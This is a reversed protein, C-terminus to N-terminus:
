SDVYLLRVVELEEISDFFIVNNKNRNYQGPTYRICATCSFWSDILEHKGSAVNPTSGPKAALYEPSDGHPSHYLTALNNCYKCLYYKKYNKTM